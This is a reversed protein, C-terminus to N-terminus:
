ANPFCDRLDPASVGPYRVAGPQCTETGLRHLQGSRRRWPVILTKRDPTFIAQWLPLPGISGGRLAEVRRQQICIAGLVLVAMSLVTILLLHVSRGTLRELRRPATDPPLPAPVPSVPTMPLHKVQHKEVTAVYSGKAIDIRMPDDAGEASYYLELRQRLQRVTVRVITDESSNYGPVRGFVNMGIQQETLNERRGELSHAVIFALLSSLRPTKAFSRSALVRELELREATTHPTASPERTITVAMSRDSGLREECPRAKGAWTVTSCLM